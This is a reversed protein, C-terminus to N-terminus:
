AKFSYDGRAFRPYTLPRAMRGAGAAQYRKIWTPCPPPSSPRLAVASPSPVCPWRPPGPAPDGGGPLGWRPRLRESRERGAGVGPAGGPAQAGCGPRNEACARCGRGKDGRLGQVGEGIRRAPGAGGGRIEACARCGEERIEM